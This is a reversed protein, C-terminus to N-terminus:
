SICRSGLNTICVLDLLNYSTFYSSFRHYRFQRPIKMNYFSSVPFSTLCLCVYTQCITSRTPTSLRCTMRFLDFVCFLTAERSIQNRLFNLKFQSFQYLTSSSSEFEIKEFVFGGVCNKNSKIKVKDQAMFEGQSREHWSNLSM